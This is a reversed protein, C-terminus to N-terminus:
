DMCLLKFKNKPFHFFKFLVSSLFDSKFNLSSIASLLFPLCLALYPAIGNDLFM